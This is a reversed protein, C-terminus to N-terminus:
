WAARRRARIGAADSARKTRPPPVGRNPITPSLPPRERTSARPCRTEDDEEEDNEDDDEFDDPYDDRGDAQIDDPEPGSGPGRTSANVPDGVRWTRRSSAPSARARTEHTTRKAGAPGAARGARYDVTVCTSFGRERAAHDERSVNSPRHTATVRRAALDAASSEPAGWRARPRGEVSM